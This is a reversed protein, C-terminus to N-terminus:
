FRVIFKLGADKEELAAVYCACPDLLYDKNELSARQAVTCAGLLMTLLIITIKTKM